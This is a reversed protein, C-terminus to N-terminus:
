KEAYANYNLKKKYNNTSAGARLAM